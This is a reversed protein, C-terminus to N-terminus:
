RELHWLAYDDLGPVADVAALGAAPGDREPSLARAAAPTSQDPTM